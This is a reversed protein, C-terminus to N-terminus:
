NTVVVSNNPIGAPLTIPAQGYTTPGILTGNTNVGVTMSYITGNALYGVLGSPPATNYVYAKGGAIYNQVTPGHSFWTPVPVTTDSVSGTFTPHAAAYVKLFGYYAHMNDGAATADATAHYKTVNQMVASAVSTVIGVIMFLVVLMQM